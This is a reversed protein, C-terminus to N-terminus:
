YTLMDTDTKKGSISIVVRAPLCAATQGNSTLKGSKVCLKDKCDAKSFWIGSKDYSIIIDPNSKIKIDKKNEVDSLDITYATKGGVTVTAINKSKDSIKPILFLVICIAFIVAALIIDNRKLLKM